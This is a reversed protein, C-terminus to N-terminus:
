TDSSILERLLGAVKATDPTLQLQWCPLRQVLEALRSFARAGGTSLQLVSSPALLRLAERREL